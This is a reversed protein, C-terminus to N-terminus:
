HPKKGNLLDLAHFLIPTLVEISHQMAKPNGPLNIILTSGAIGAEGRSLWSLPTQEAGRLRLLEAIGNAHREIVDRTAEATVDRAAFGIGGTTLILHIDPRLVYNQLATSIISRDDPVIEIAAVKIGISHLAEALAPGSQDKMEGAFCRDSATIIVASYTESKETPEVKEV